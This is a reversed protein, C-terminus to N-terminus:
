AVRVQLVSGNRYVGGVPVGGAAAAADNAYDSLTAKVVAFGNEDYAFVELLALIERQMADFVLQLGAYEEPLLIPKLAVKEAM